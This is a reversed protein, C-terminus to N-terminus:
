SAATNKGTESSLAAPVLFIVSNNCGTKGHSAAFIVGTATAGPEGRGM